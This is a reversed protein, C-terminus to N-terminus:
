SDAGDDDHRDGGVDDARDHDGFGAQFALWDRAAEVFCGGAANVVRVTKADGTFFLQGKTAMEALVDRALEISCRAQKAVELVALDALVQRESDLLPRNIAPSESM